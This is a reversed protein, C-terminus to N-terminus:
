YAFYGQDISLGASLTDRYREITCIIGDVDKSEFPWKLARSGCLSMIKGTKGTNLKKELKTKLGELQLSCGTLGDRLGQSTRLRAGNPGDLLKQAGELVVNLRGLEGQLREIDSKANKVNRLYQFCLSAVAQSIQIVAIVSAAGSLPEMADSAHPLPATPSRFQYSVM